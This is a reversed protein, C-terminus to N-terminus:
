AAFGCVTAALSPEDLVSAVGPKAARREAAASAALLAVVPWSVVLM